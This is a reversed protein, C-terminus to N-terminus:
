NIIVQQKLIYCMLKIMNAVKPTFELIVKLYFTRHMLIFLKKKKVTFKISNLLEAYKSKQPYASKDKDHWFPTMLLIPKEINQNSSFDIVSFIYEKIVM